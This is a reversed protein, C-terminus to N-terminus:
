ALGAIALSALGIGTEGYDNGNYLMYTKGHHRFVCPYEIMESDWGSNSPEIGALQDKRTWRMGDTSEAYGIRYREGRYSYWMRYLGDDDKIVCPRSIAYEEPSQFDISVLGTRNWHIGDHSTAYKIHYYHKPQGAEDLEWRCCSLYWMRWLDGEIMVWSSATFYPDIDDRPLIPGRSAKEFTLGGDRSIALGASNYFPVTRGLNWGIYYLYVSDQHRLVCSAMAGSDDFSGLPGPSLVTDKSVSCVRSPEDPNFDFFGTHSRNAPDRGTFYVRVLDATDLVCPVAAHTTMWTSGPQPQFVIGQKIWKM